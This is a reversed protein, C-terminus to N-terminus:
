LAGEEGDHHESGLRISGGGWGSAGEGGQHERRHMM